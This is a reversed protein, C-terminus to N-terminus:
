CIAETTSNIRLRGFSERVIVPRLLSSRGGATVDLIVHIM